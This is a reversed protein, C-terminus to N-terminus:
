GIAQFQILVFKPSCWRLLSSVEKKNGTGLGAAEKAYYRAIVLHTM